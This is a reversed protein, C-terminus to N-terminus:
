ERKKSIVTLWIPKNVLNIRIKVIPKGERVLGIILVPNFLVGRVLKNPHITYSIERSLEEESRAELNFVPDPPTCWTGDQGLTNNLSDYGKHKPDIKFGEPVANEVSLDERYENELISIAYQTGSGTATYREKTVTGLWDIGYLQSGENDYGGILMQVILMPRFQFLIISALTALSKINIPDGTSVRYSAAEIKLQNVLWQADGVAGAITVAAHEDIKYIKRAKKHAIFHGSTARRDAALVTFDKFVAGVTTTGKLINIITQDDRNNKFM